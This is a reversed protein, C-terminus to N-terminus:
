INRRRRRNAVHLEMLSRRLEGAAIALDQESISESMKKKLEDARKQAELAKEAAITESEVAYDALITIHNNHLELFGGTVGFYETKKDTKITAEGPEIQTVLSAHHPLITIEGSTTPVTLATITGEWVNKEPTVISLQM